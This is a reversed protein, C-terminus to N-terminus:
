FRGRLAVVVRRHFYDGLRDKNTDYLRIEASFPGVLTRTLGANFSTYDPGGTRSRVGIGASASTKKGFQYSAGAEWFATRGTTSLDDPSYTISVRPKLDGFAHTAAFAVELASRDIGQVTNILHKIAASGSLETRGFGKRYGILAGVEGDFTQSTVNKAYTGIRLPGFAVEPRVVVQAGDTQAVGKSYGRSAISLEISPDPPPLDFAM